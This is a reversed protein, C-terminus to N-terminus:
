RAVTFSKSVAEIEHDALSYLVLIGTQKSAAEPLLLPTPTSPDFSGLLFADDPVLEQLKREGAVWYVLLDPRTIPNTPVLDIAFQASGGSVTLLQTRIAMKEWMDNRSWLTSQNRTEGPPGSIRLTSVPVEKRTAIGMAFAAPVAITLSLVMIRHRQRLPRIM